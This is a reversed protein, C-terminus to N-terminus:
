TRGGLQTIKRKLKRVVRGPLARWWLLFRRVGLTKVYSQYGESDCSTYGSGNYYGTMVGLIWDEPVLEKYFRNDGCILYDHERVKVVRHLVYRGEPLNPLTGGPRYFLAVDNKRLRGAPPEIVVTSYRDHLLPEMSDGVTQFFGRGREALEREITATEAM